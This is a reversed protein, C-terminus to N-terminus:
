DNTRLEMLKLFESKPDKGPEPKLFIGTVASTTFHGDDGQLQACMHNANIVVIVGKAQIAEQIWNAIQRTMVEQIQLRAAFYKVIKDIKNMGLLAKDPVIGVYAKGYFPVIHHECFSIFECKRILMDHSTNNFITIPIVNPVKCVARDQENMVCLQKTYGYFIRKYMRVVRQPTMRIGERETNEGIVKLITNVAVELAKEEFARVGSNFKEYKDERMM